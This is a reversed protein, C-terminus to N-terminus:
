PTRRLTLATGSIGSGSINGVASDAQPSLTGNFTLPVFGPAGFTMTVTRFTKKGTVTVATSDTPAAAPGKVKGSGSLDGGKDTLTFAFALSPSGSGTSGSWAGTTDPGAPVETAGGNCAALLSALAAAALLPRIPSRM